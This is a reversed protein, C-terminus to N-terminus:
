EIYTLGTYVRHWRRSNAAQVYFKDNGDNTQFFYVRVANNRIYAKSFVGEKEKKKLDICPACQYSTPEDFVLGCSSVIENCKKHKIFYRNFWKEADGARGLQSALLPLQLIVKQSREYRNVDISYDVYINNDPSDIKTFPGYVSQEAYKGFFDDYRRLNHQKGTVSKSFVAGHNKSCIPEKINTKFYGFGKINTIDLSIPFFDIEDKKLYAAATDSIIVPETEHSRIPRDGIVGELRSTLNVHSGFIDISEGIIPGVRINGAHISIRVNIEPSGAANGSSIRKTNFYSSARKMDFAALISNLIAEKPSISENSPFHCLIGDGLTKIFEGKRDKIIKAMIRFYEKLREHLDKATWKRSLDTFGALDSFLISSFTTGNDKLMTEGELVHTDPRCMECMEVNM